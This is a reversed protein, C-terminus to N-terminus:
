PTPEVLSQLTEEGGPAPRERRRARAQEEEWAFLVELPDCQKWLPRSAIV